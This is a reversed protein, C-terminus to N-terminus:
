RKSLLTLTKEEIVEYDRVCPYLHLFHPPFLCSQRRWACSVAKRKRWGESDGVIDWSWARPFSRGLGPACLQMSDCASTFVRPICLTVTAGACHPSRGAM